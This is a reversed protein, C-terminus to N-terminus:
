NGGASSLFHVALGAENFVQKYKGVFPVIGGEKIENGKGSGCLIFM